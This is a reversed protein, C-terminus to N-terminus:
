ICRERCGLLDQLIDDPVLHSPSPWWRSRLQQEPMASRLEPEVFPARGKGGEGDGRGLCPPSPRPSPSPPLPERCPTPFHKSNPILLVSNPSTPHPQMPKPSAFRGFGERRWTLRRDGTSEATAQRADTQNLRSRTRSATSFLVRHGATWRGSRRRDLRRIWSPIPRSAAALPLLLSCFGRLLFQLCCVVCCDLSWLFCRSM